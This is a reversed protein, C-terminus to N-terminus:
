RETPPEPEREPATAAGSPPSDSAIARGVEASACEVCYYNYTQSRTRLPVGALCIEDRSRRVLGQQLESGCVVCHETNGETDHVVREDVTQTRGFQALSHRRDLRRRFRPNVFMGFLLIVVSISVVVAAALPNTPVSSDITQLIPVFVGLFGIGVLMWGAIGYLGDSVTTALQVSNSPKQSM